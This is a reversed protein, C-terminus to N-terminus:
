IKLEPLPQFIYKKRNNQMKEIIKFQVPISNIHKNSKFHQSKHQYKYTSGCCCTIIKSSKEKNDIRYQQIKEKNDIRYQQIKEKNDIRYQQIKDKNDIYYEKAYKNIIEKNEIYYQQMKEKNEIRYEKCYQQIKDRNDIYYQKDTRMPIQKNCMPNLARIFRAEESHLEDRSNCPYLKILLIQHNNWGDNDLVTRYIKRNPKLKSMSKHKDFRRCLMPECTSGVYILLDDSNRVIKYIKALNYNTM